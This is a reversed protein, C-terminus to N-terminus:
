HELSLLLATRVVQNRQTSSAKSKMELGYFFTHQKLDCKRYNTVVAVSHLHAKGEPQLEDATRVGCRPSAQNQWRPINRSARAKSGM